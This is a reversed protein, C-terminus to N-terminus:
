PMLAESNVHFQLIQWKNNHLIVRIQITAPAREFIAEAVYAATTVKGQPTVSINAQGKSGKYTELKGLRGSFINFLSEIKDVPAVQLLESSARDILEKSNWSSIIIPIAEDVYAMSEKDLKSGFYNLMFFGIVVVIILAAFVVGLVMLIKKM